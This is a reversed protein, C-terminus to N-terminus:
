CLRKKYLTNEYEEISSCIRINYKELLEFINNSTGNMIIEECLKLALEKDTSYISYLEIAILYSIQYAMDLTIGQEFYFSLDNQSFSEKNLLSFLEPQSLDKNESAIDLADTKNLINYSQYKVIAHLNQKRKIGEYDLKFKNSIYDAAIMEMFMAITERIVYEETFNPNIYFDIVHQIEHVLITFKTINSYNPSFVFADGISKLFLTEGETDLNGKIFKLHDEAENYFELVQSYFMNGQHGYFEIVDSVVQEDSLLLSKYRVDSELEEVNRGTFMFREVIPYFPKYFEHYEADEQIQEFLTISSYGQFNNKVRKIYEELRIADIMVMSDHMNEKLLTLISELDKIKIDYAKKM